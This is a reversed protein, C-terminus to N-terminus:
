NEDRGQFPKKNVSVLVREEASPGTRGSSTDFGGAFHAM